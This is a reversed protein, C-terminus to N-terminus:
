ATKLDPNLRNSGLSSLLLWRLRFFVMNIPFSIKFLTKYSQVSVDVMDETTRTLHQSRFFYNTFSCKISHPKGICLNQWITNSRKHIKGHNCRFKVPGRTIQQFSSLVLNTSIIVIKHFLSFSWHPFVIVQLM